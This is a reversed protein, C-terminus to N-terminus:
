KQGIVSQRPKSGQQDDEQDKRELRKEVIDPEAQMLEYWALACEFPHAGGVPRLQKCVGAHPTGQTDRQQVRSKAQYYLQYQAKADSKKQVRIIRTESEQATHECQCQDDRWGDGAHHKQQQLIGLETYERIGQLMQPHQACGGDQAIRGGGQQTDHNGIDPM